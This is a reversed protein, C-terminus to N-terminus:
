QPLCATNGPPAKQTLTVSALSSVMASQNGFYRHEYLVLGNCQLPFSLCPSQTSQALEPKGTMVEKLLFTEQFGSMVIFRKEEMDQCADPQM